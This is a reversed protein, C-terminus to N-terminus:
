IHKNDDWFFRDIVDYNPIQVLILTIVFHIMFNALLFLYSLIKGLCIIKINDFNASALITILICNAEYFM